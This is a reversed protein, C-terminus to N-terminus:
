PMVAMERAAQKRAAMGDLMERWRKADKDDPYDFPDDTLCSLIVPEMSGPTCLMHGPHKGFEEMDDFCPRCFKESTSEGDFVSYHRVYASGAAIAGDCADCKHPKRARGVHTNVFVQCPELDIDCM